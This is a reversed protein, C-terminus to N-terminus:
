PAEPLKECRCTVNKQDWSNHGTTCSPYHPFCSVRAAMQGNTLAALFGLVIITTALAVIAWRLVQKSYADM